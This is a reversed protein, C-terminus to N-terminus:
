EIIRTVVGSNKEIIRNINYKKMFLPYFNRNRFSLYKKSRVPMHRVSMQNTFGIRLGCEKAKLFFAIHEHLKLEDDWRIIDRIVETKGIFFNHTIDTRVFDPFENTILDICLIRDEHSMTLSGIYNSREELRFIDRILVKVYDWPHYVTSNTRFYGGIIDLNNQKLLLLGTELDTKNDLLFDDDLLVFYETNVHDLLFNRGYSLGSDKPLDYVTIAAKPNKFRAVLRCSSYGISVHHILSTHLWRLNDCADDAVVTGFEKESM